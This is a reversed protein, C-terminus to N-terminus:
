MRNTTAVAARSATASGVEIRARVRSGSASRGVKRTGRIMAVWTTISARSRLGRDVGVEGSGMSVQHRGHWNRGPSAPVLFARQRGEVVPTGDPWEPQDSSSDRERRDVEYVTPGPDPAPVVRRRRSRDKALRGALEIRVEAPPEEAELERELRAARRELLGHPARELLDGM